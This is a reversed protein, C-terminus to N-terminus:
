VLESCTAEFVATQRELVMRRFVPVGFVASIAVHRLAAFCARIWQFMKCRLKGGCFIMTSHCSWDIHLDLWHKQVLFDCRM